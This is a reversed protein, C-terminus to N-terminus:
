PAAAALHVPAAERRESVVRWGRARVRLRLDVEALAEPGGERFGGLAEFRDRRVLLIPPEADGPLRVAAGVVAVESDFEACAVLDRLWGQGPLAGPGLFVLHRGRRRDAGPLRVAM